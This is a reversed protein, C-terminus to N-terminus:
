WSEEAERGNLAYCADDVARRYKGNAVVLLNASALTTAGCVELARIVVEPSSQAAPVTASLPKYDWQWCVVLWQAFEGSTVSPTGLLPAPV